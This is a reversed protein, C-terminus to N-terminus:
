WELPQHWPNQQYVAPKSTFSFLFVTSCFSVSGFLPALVSSSLCPRNQKANRELLSAPPPLPIAIPHISTISIYQFSFFFICTEALQCQQSASFDLFTTQTPLLAFVCSHRMCYASPPCFICFSSSSRSFLHILSQTPLHTLPHSIPSITTITHALCHNCLFHCSGDACYPV